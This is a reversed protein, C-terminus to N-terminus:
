KSLEIVTKIDERDRTFGRLFDQLPVSRTIMKNLLGSWKKKFDSFHTLGMEFHKRNSNVIGFLVKNGLVLQLNLCDACIEMTKYSASVGTLCLIGNNNLANIAKLALTSNGTAEIIIDFPPIREALSLLPEEIGNVYEADTENVIKAKLSDKARTAMTYTHMNMTRLIMTAFLGIPGAGLVLANEPEWLLRKQLAFVQSIAKEVISLPELLVSVDEHEESIRILYEPNEVYYEAMYGHLGKIGREKYHGTLCMDYEKNNCNLCNEPCPRRVTAVVLDGEKFNEVNEGVQEVRGLSEHGLILFDSGEPAEGYLGENIERDTADFGVRLVRVLVESENPVPKNVEILGASDKKGPKVAIAKMRPILM